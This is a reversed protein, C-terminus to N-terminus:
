WHKLMPLAESEGADKAPHAQLTTPLMQSAYYSAGSFAVFYCYDAARAAARIRKIYPVTSCCLEPGGVRPSQHKECGKGKKETFFDM